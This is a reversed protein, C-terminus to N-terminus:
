YCPAAPLVASAGTSLQSSADTVVAPLVMMHAHLTHAAIYEATVYPVLGALSAFLSKFPGGVLTEVVWTRLSSVTQNDQCQEMIHVHIGEISDLMGANNDHRFM